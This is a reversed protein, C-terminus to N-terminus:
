ILCSKRNSKNVYHIAKIKCHSNKTKIKLSVHSASISGDKWDEEWETQTSRNIPCPSGSNSPAGFQTHATRAQTPNPFGFGTHVPAGYSATRAPKPNLSGFGTHLPAGLTFSSAQTTATRPQTPNLMLPEQSHKINPSITIIYPSKSTDLDIQPAFNIITEGLPKLEAKRQGIITQDTTRLTIVAEVRLSESSLLVVNDLLIDNRCSLLTESTINSMVTSDASKEEEFEDVSQMLSTRKPVRAEVSNCLDAAKMKEIIYMSTDIHEKDTLYAYEIQARTFDRISLTPFRLYYFANAMALRKKTPDNITAKDNLQEIRQKAWDDAAKLIDLEPAFFTNGKLILELTKPRINRFGESHMVELANSDIYELSEEILMTDEYLLAHELICCVNNSGIFDKIFESCYRFCRQVQYQHAIKLVDLAIDESLDTYDSYLYRFSVFHCHNYM